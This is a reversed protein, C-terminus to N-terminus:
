DVFEVTCGETTFDPDTRQKEMHYLMHGTCYPVADGGHFSVLYHTDLGCIMESVDRDLYQEPHECSAM